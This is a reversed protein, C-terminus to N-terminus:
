GYFKKWTIRKPKLKKIQSKLPVLHIFKLKDIQAVFNTFEEQDRISPVNIAFGEIFDKPVRQQGVTGRMNPKAKERFYQSHIIHFIYEPLVKEGCRIVFLETTGAAFGNSLNKAITAKGNEMCPTIKAFLVDSEKIQSFGKKVTGYEKDLSTDLSGDVGVKEMPIFTVLLNDDLKERAPNIMCVSGIKSDTMHEVPGFLEIFRSKILEDYLFAEDVALTKLKKIDELKSVREKQVELTPLDIDLAKLADLKLIARVSGSTVSNIYDHVYKSKLFYNLYLPYVSPHCSFVTYIPSVVAEDAVTLCDISGVNIRSPNFAFDFREVIKYTKKNRSSVDKNFYDRVFGGSNTVSYVPIARNNKNRKSVETILDGLLSM